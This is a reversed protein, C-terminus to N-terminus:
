INGFRLVFTDQLVVELHYTNEHKEQRQGELQHLNHTQYIRDLTTKGKNNLPCFVLVLSTISSSYVVETSGCSSYQMYRHESPLDNCYLPYQSPKFPCQWIQFITIIAYVLTAKEPVSSAM